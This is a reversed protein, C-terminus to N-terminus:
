RTGFVKPRTLRDILPTVANMLLISYSVGEPYGGWLRIVSAIIGCGIGFIIMGSKTVPSTVMDTAMFFAGLILGGSLVHFLIAYHIQPVGQFYYYIGMIAAVTAIYSVPIHWTIIRKWLLLLAGILLLLASTEGICGGINGIFLSKIMAKSFLFDYLPQTSLSLEHLVKPGEKLAGLPTAGSISDVLQKPMSPDFVPNQAIVFGGPFKHWLTTMEVPWSALLFARGALAPNFINYGLGGFLQKAIIIAFASGVAPIWLPVHPPLNMALLLGTIVASGDNVTIPNKLLYQMVAEAAIASIVAVAIVAAVYAGYIFCSFIAAPLLALVVLWMVFPVSQTDRIHPAHSLVLDELLRKKDADKIEM